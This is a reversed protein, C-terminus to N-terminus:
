DVHQVDVQQCQEGTKRSPCVWMAAPNSKRGAVYIYNPDPAPATGWATTACGGVLTALVGAALLKRMKM